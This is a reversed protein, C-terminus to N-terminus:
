RRRAWITSTGATAVPQYHREFETFDCYKAIQTPWDSVVEINEELMYHIVQHDKVARFAAVNNKGDLNVVRDLFYGLTGSQFAGIKRGAFHEQLYSVSPVFANSKTENYTVLWQIASVFTLLGLSCKIFFLSSWRGNLKRAIGHCLVVLVFGSWPYFAARISHVYRRMFWWSGQALIYYSMLVVGFAVLATFPKLDIRPWARRLRTQRAVVLAVAAYLLLWVAIIATSEGFSYPTYVSILPIELIARCTHLLTMWASHWYGHITMQFASAKGSIPMFTGDLRYVYIWWPATLLGAGLSWVVVSLIRQSLRERSLFLFVLAFCVALLGMDVRCLITVGLVIGLLCDYLLLPRTGRWRWLYLETAGIMASASFVTEYGNLNTRFVQFSVVWLTSSLWALAIAQDPGLSAFILRTLRFILYAALLSAIVDIARAWRLARYKDFGGLVHAVAYLLNGPQAGSTPTHGDITIGKGMALNRAVGMHFFTDEEFPRHPLSDKKVFIYSAQMAIGIVVIPICWRRINRAADRALFALTGSDSLVAAKASEM